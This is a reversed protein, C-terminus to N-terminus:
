VRFNRDVPAKFQRKHLPPIQWWCGLVARLFIFQLTEIRPPYKLPLLSCPSQWSLCSAKVTCCLMKESVDSQLWQWLFLVCWAARKTMIKDEAPKRTFRACWLHTNFFFFTQSPPHRSMATKSPLVAPPRPWTSFPQTFLYSPGRGRKAGTKDSRLTFRSKSPRGAPSEKIKTYNAWMSYVCRCCYSVLFWSPM